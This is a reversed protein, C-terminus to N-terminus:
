RRHNLERVAEGGNWDSAHRAILAMVVAADPSHRGKFGVAGPGCGGSASVRRVDQSLWWERSLWRLTFHALLQEVKRLVRMKELEHFMLQWILNRANFIKIKLIMNCIAFHRSLNRRSKESQNPLNKNELHGVEKFPHNQKQEYSLIRWNFDIM